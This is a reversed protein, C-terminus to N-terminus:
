VKRPNQHLHTANRATYARISRPLRGQYAILIEVMTSIIRPSAGPFKWFASPLAVIQKFGSDLVRFWDHWKTIQGQGTSAGNRGHGVLPALSVVILGLMYIHSRRLSMAEARRQQCRTKCRSVRLSRSRTPFGLIQGTSAGNRGHGV